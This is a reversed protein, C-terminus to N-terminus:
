ADAAWAAVDVALGDPADPDPIVWATDRPQGARLWACIQTEFARPDQTGPQRPEGVFTLDTEAADVHRLVVRCRSRRHRAPPVAERVVANRAGAATAFAPAAARLRAVFAQGADNTANARPPTSPSTPERAIRVSVQAAARRPVPPLIRRGATHTTEMTLLLRM